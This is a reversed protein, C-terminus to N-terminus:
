SIHAWLEVHKSRLSVAWILIQSGFKMEAINESHVIAFFGTKITTKQARTQSTVLGMKMYSVATKFLFVIQLLKYNGGDKPIQLSYKWFLNLSKLIYIVELIWLLFSITRHSICPVLHPTDWRFIAKACKVGGGLFDGHENRCWRCISWIKLETTKIGVVTKEGYFSWSNWIGAKYHGLVSKGQSFLGSASCSRSLPDIM